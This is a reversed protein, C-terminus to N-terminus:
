WTCVVLLVALSECVQVVVWFTGQKEGVLVPLRARRKISHKPGRADLPIPEHRPPIQGQILPRRQPLHDVDSLPKNDEHVEWSPVRHRIDEVLEVWIDHLNRSDAFLLACVHRRLTKQM